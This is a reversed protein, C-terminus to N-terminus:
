IHHRALDIKFNHTKLNINSNTLHNALVEEHYFLSRHEKRELRQLIEDFHFGMKCIHKINEYNKTFCLIDFAYENLSRDTLCLYVSNNDFNNITIQDFYALDTRLKIYLDFIINNNKQYDELLNFSQYLSYIQNPLNDSIKNITNNFYLKIESVPLKDCTIISYPNYISKFEEIKEQHNGQYPDSASGTWFHAFYHINHGQLNPLFMEIFTKNSLDFWRLEGYLILAINM